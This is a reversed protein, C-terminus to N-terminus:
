DLDHPRLTWSRQEETCITQLPIDLEASLDALDDEGGLQDCAFGIADTPDPLTADWVRATRDGSGTVIWRGDPSFAASWVPDGHGKLLRLERVSTEGSTFAILSTLPIPMAEGQNGLTQAALSLRASRCYEGRLLSVDALTLVATALNDQARRAANQSASLLIGVLVLLGLLLLSAGAFLGRVRAERAATESAYRESAEIASREDPTLWGPQRDRLDAFRALEWGQLLIRPPTVPVVGISQLARRVPGRAVADPALNPGADAVREALADLSRKAETDTLLLDNLLPWQTLLAEHSIEVM